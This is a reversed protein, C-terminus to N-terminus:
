SEVLQRMWWYTIHWNKCSTHVLFFVLSHDFIDNSYCKLVLFGCLFLNLVWFLLGYINMILSHSNTNWLIVLDFRKPQKHTDFNKMLNLLFQTMGEETQDYTLKYLLIRATQPEKSDEPLLKLILDLMRIQFIFFCFNTFM